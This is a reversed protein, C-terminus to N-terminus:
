YYAFGGFLLVGALMAYRVLRLVGPTMGPGRTFIPDVM